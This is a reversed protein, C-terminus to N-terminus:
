DFLFNSTPYAKREVGFEGESTADERNQAEPLRQLGLGALLNSIVQPGQSLSASSRHVSPVLLWSIFKRNRGQTLEADQTAAKFRWLQV